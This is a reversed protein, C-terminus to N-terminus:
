LSCESSGLANVVVTMKFYKKWVDFLGWLRPENLVNWCNKWSKGPCIKLRNGPSELVTHEISHWCPLNVISSAFVIFLWWAVRSVVTTFNSRCYMSYWVWMIQVLRQHLMRSLSYTVYVSYRVTMLYTFSMFNNQLYKPLLMWTHLVDANRGLTMQKGPSELVRWTVKWSKEPNM